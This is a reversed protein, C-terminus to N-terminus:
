KSNKNKRARSANCQAIARVCDYFVHTNNMTKKLIYEPIALVFHVKDSGGFFLFSDVM